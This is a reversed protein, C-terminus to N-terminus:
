RGGVLEVAHRMPTLDVQGLGSYPHSLSWVLLSSLSVTISLGVIMLIHAGTNSTGFFYAFGITIAGGVGLVIWMIAPLRHKGGTIRIERSRALTNLRTLIEAYWLRDNDDQPIFSSYTQWLSDLALKARESGRGDQTRQVEHEVVGMVYTRLEDRLAERFPSPFAITDRYIQMAVNAEDEVAQEIAMHREWVVIVILGILVGYIVGIVAYIFGAVDNHQELRRFDINRRLVLFIVIPVFVVTAVFAIANVWDIM